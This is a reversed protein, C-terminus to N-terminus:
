RGPLAPRTAWQGPPVGHDGGRHRDQGAAGTQRKGCRPRVPGPDGYRRQGPLFAFTSWFPDNNIEVNSFHWPSCGELPLVGPNLAVPHNKEDTSSTCPSTHHKTNPTQTSAVVFLLCWPPSSM